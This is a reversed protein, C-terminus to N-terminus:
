PAVLWANAAEVITDTGTLVDSLKQTVVVDPVVGHGSECMMKAEANAITDAYRGDSAAITGRHWSPILPPIEVDSGLAGFSPLPGFIELNARGQLLRPVMDNNSIDETDLWAIKSASGPAPNNVTSYVFIDSHRCVSPPSAVNCTTWDFSFLSAGDPNDFTGRAALAL